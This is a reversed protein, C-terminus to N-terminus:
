AIAERLIRECELQFTESVGAEWANCIAELVVQYGDYNWSSEAHADFGTVEEFLSAPTPSDAWEGSLNPCAPLHDYAVPDGDDMLALLRRYHEEGTNGDTCWTAASKAAEVGLARATAEYKSLDTMASEKTNPLRMLDPM